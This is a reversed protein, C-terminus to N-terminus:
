YPPRVPLAVDLKLNHSLELEIMISLEIRARVLVRGSRAWKLTLNGGMAPALTTTERLSRRLLSIKERSLYGRLETLLHSPGRLSIERKSALRQRPSIGRRM